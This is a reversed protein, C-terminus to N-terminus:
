VTTPSNKELYIDKNTKKKWEKNQLQCLITLGEIVEWNYICTSHIVCKKEEM